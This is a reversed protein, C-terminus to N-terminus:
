DRVTNYERILEDPLYVSPKVPHVFDHERLLALLDHLTRSRREGWLAIGNSVGIRHTNHLVATPIAAEHWVQQLNTLDDVLSRLFDSEMIMWDVFAKFMPAAGQRSEIRYGRYREWNSLLRRSDFHSAVRDLATYGTSHRTWVWSQDDRPCFEVPSLLADIGKCIGAVTASNIKPSILCDDEAFVVHKYDGVIDAVDILRPHFSHFFTSHHGLTRDGCPCHNTLPSHDWSQIVNSFNRDPVCSQSIAFVIADFQKAYIESLVHRNAYSADRACNIVLLVQNRISM